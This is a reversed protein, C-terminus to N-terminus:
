RLDDSPQVTTSEVPKSPKKTSKYKQLTDELREAVRAEVARIKSEVIMEFDEEITKVKSEVKNISYNTELIARKIDEKTIELENKSTKFGLERKLFQLDDIAAKRTMQLDFSAFHDEFKLDLANM